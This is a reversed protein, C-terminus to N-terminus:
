RVFMPAQGKSWPDYEHAFALREALPPHSYLWVKIFANPNPDALDVEGLIQFAEAATQSSDPVIGHTVELGYVDAQHEQYRSFTNFAPEALFFFLYTFLLLAPLSAWDDLGRLAWRRQERALTRSLALHVLLLVVIILSGAFAIGKSIHGLVYHGMEHGVVFLTQPPTMKAITTDWVVVRKSAGFGTVYADVANVKESAKMEFMRERPIDLGGQKVVKEIEAVLSPQTAQLPEFHNFLPDIVIPSIFLLFILIPLSALGFYLWWRRRSRRIVGYLIYALISAIVLQLFEGKTWDWLWSDWSQVSIEYQVALHHEYAELPFKLADLTFLLLPVFTLAQVFRRRSFSEAWDRFVPAIRLSLIVFLLLLSYAVGVFHLRYQTRSYSVAKEYKDPPLTYSKVQQKELSPGSPSISQESSPPPQSQANAKSVIIAAACVLSLCVILLSHRV